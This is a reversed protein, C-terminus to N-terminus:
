PCDELALDVGFSWGLGRTVGLILGVHGVDGSDDLGENGEVYLVGVDVADADVVARGGEGSGERWDKGGFGGLGTSEAVLAGRCPLFGAQRVMEVECRGFAGGACLVDVGEAFDVVLEGQRICVAVAGEVRVGRTRVESENQNELVLMVSPLGFAPDVAFRLEVEERWGGCGSRQRM